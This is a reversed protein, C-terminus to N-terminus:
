KSTMYEICERVSLKKLLLDEGTTQYRAHIAQHGVQTALCLNSIDNNKPNEDIHHINVSDPLQSPHLGLYEAMVIHHVYYRTGDLLRTLYGRGDECDSAWRRGYQPNKEGLKSQKYRTGKLMTFVEDPIYARIMARATVPNIGFREAVEAVTVLEQKYTM